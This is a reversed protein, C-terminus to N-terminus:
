TRPARPLIRPLGRDSVWALAVTLLIFPILWWTEAVGSRVLLPYHLVYLGYSISAVAAAPGAVRGSLTGLVRRIPTALVVILVLAVAFHRTMLGPYQGIGQWGDTVVGFASVLVLAVLGALEPLISGIRLSGETYARAAMAGAWWLLFYALVLAFHNPTALFVAYSACCVVPVVLRTVRESRRWGIMVLPFVLYFFVEYSLSWLPDNGLYPSSIVGPKLGATDQLSFLTALASTLTPTAQIIGLAWLATAVLMAFIIPPYIRRLRRLYYGTPKAVRDAENAFIVFGSLLFFVIVAEQGFSFALSVLRPTDVHALVHYIVVYVAALARAVDLGARVDPGLTRRALAPQQDIGVM